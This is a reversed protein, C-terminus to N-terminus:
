NDTYCNMLQCYEKIQTIQGNISFKDIDQSITSVRVYCGVSKRKMEKMNKMRENILCDIIAYSVINLPENQFLNGCPKQKLFIFKM